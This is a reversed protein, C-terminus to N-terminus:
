VEAARRRTNLCKKLKQYACGVILREETVELMMNKEAAVLAALAFAAAVIKTGGFRLGIGLIADALQLELSFALHPDVLGAAHIAARLPRDDDDIRFFDPVVVNVLFIDLLNNLFVQYM